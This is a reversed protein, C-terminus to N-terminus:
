EAVSLPSTYVLGVWGDSMILMVVHVDKEADAESCTGTFLPTLHSTQEYM